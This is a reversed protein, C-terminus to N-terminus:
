LDTGQLMKLLRDKEKLADDLETQKGLIVKNLDKIKGSLEEIIGNLREKVKAIDEGAVFICNNRPQDSSYHVVSVQSKGPKRIMEELRRIDDVEENIRGLTGELEERLVDMQGVENMLEQRM